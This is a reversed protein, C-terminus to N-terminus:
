QLSYLAIHGVIAAFDAYPRDLLRLDGKPTYALFKALAAEQQPTVVDVEGSRVATATTQAPAVRPRLPSVKKPSGNTQVVTAPLVPLRAAKPALPQDEAEVGEEEDDDEELESEVRVALRKQPSVSKQPSKSKAVAAAEERAKQGRAPPGINSPDPTPRRVAELAPVAPRVAAAEEEEEETESPPGEEVRVPPARRAEEAEELRRAREERERIREKQRKKKAKEIRPDYEAKRKVYHSRWAQATHRPYKEAMAEYIVNGSLAANPPQAALFEVLQKSDTEDFPVHEARTRNRGSPSPVPAARREAGNIAPSPITEGAEKM